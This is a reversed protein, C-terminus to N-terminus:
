YNGINVHVQVRMFALCKITHHIYIFIYKHFQVKVNGKQIMPIIQVYGDLSKFYLIGQNVLQVFMFYTVLQLGPVM